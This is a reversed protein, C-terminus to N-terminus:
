RCKLSKDLRVDLQALGREKYKEKLEIFEPNSIVNQAVRIPAQFDQPAKAPSTLFLSLTDGEFKYFITVAHSSFIYDTQPNPEACLEKNTSLVLVDYNQGRVERKFYLNRGDAIKLSAVGYEPSLDACALMSIALGLCVLLYKLGTLM